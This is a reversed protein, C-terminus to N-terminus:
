KLSDIIVLLVLGFVIVASFALIVKVLHKNFM